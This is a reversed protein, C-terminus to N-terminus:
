KLTFFPVVLKDAAIADGHVRALRKLDSSSNLDLAGLNVAGEQAKGPDSAQSTFDAIWEVAIASEGDPLLRDPERFVSHIPGEWFTPLRFLHYFGLDRIREDFIQGAIKTDHSVAALLSTRPFIYQLDKQGGGSLPEADIGYSKKELNSLVAYRLLALREAPTQTSITPSM